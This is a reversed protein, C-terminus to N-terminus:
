AAPVWLRARAQRRIEDTGTPSTGPTTWFPHGYMNRLAEVLEHPLRHRVPRGDEAGAGSATRAAPYPAWSCQNGLAGTDPGRM